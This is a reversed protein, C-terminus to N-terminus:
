EDGVFEQFISTINEMMIRTRSKESFFSKNFINKKIM